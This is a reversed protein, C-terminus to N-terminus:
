FHSDVININIELKKELERKYIDLKVDDVEYALVFKNNISMGIIKDRNRYLVLGYYDTYGPGFVSVKEYYIVMEELRLDYKFPGLYFRLCDGHKELRKPLINKIGLYLIIASPISLLIFAKLSVHTDVALFLVFPLFSIVGYSICQVFATYTQKFYVSNNLENM